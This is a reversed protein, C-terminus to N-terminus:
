IIEIEAQLAGAAKIAQLINILDRPTAGIANLGQVLQQISVGGGVVALSGKEEQVEINTQPVIATEGDSFPLPQSIFPDESIQVTLNGHAVAVPTIRVNEGIVITGTRENIVVKAVSEPEVQLNEVEAILETIRGAFDSPVQIKVSAADLARALEGGFLQNIEQATRHATTFDPTRLVLDLSQQSGFDTSVEQEVTAGGSIFGVTPFNKQVSTGSQGSFSFGGTSLPGQALAYTKGDPGQLSTMLLTGGQLDKADGISSVQVDLKSGVRVFPPLNATVMVAAVNKVKIMNPDIHIGVNDLLNALTNVTFRTREKDGTGNLGAVLGYGVLPNSATGMFYAIDKIRAAHCSEPSFCWSIMLFFVLFNLKCRM